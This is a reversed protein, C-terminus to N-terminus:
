HVHVGQKGQEPQTQNAEPETKSDQPLRLRREVGSVFISCVTSNQQLLRCILELNFKINKYSGVNRFLSNGSDETCFSDAPSSFSVNKKTLLKKGHLHLCCM